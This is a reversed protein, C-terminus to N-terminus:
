PNVVVFKLWSENKRPLEVGIINRIKGKKQDEVAVVCTKV